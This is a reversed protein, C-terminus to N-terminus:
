MFQKILQYSVAHASGPELITSFISLKKSKIFSIVGLLDNNENFMGGGSNGFFAPGSFRYYLNIDHKNKLCSNKLPSNCFLYGSVIGTTVIGKTGSPAGVIYAKQGIKPPENALKVYPGSRKMIKKTVVVALDKGYDVKLTEAEYVNHDYSTSVYMKWGRSLFVNSIHGVTIIVMKENKRNLIIAGSGFIKGDKKSFYVTSYYGKSYNNDIEASGFKNHSCGSCASLLLLLFTLLL